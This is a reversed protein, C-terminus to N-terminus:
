LEIKFTDRDNLLPFIRRFKQLEDYSIEFNRVSETDGMFDAFGKPSVMASDGLYRLGAGDSGVRNVGVCYCQNEIARSILLNKWVHHRPSPWNAMYLLVDYDETNRAWVPFRLDYCILPCFKWGKYEVITKSNGASYHETEQGMTYLHHKDYIEPTGDPHMWVARNYIKGRHEIILSGLVAANKEHALNKMWQVAIGDMPEKLEGPHMSFGTTFMEPLVILETPEADKLLTDYKELNANIDEWVIDPQVITIKLNQM